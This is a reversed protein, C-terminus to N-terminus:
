VSAPPQFLDVRQTANGRKADREHKVDVMNQAPGSGSGQIPQRNKRPKVVVSIHQDVQEEHDRAVDKGMDIQHIAPELARDAIEHRSSKRPKIRQM